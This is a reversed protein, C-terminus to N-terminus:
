AGARRARVRGFMAEVLTLLRARGDEDEPPLAAWEEGLVELGGARDRRELAERWPLAAFAAATLGTVVLPLRTAGGAVVGALAAGIGVIVLLAAALAYRRWGRRQRASMREFDPAAADLRAEGEAYV